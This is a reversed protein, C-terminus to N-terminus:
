SGLARVVIVGAEVMLGSAIGTAIQKWIAMWEAKKDESASEAARLAVWLRRVAEPLDFGVGVAEDDLASQMEHLLRHLYLRLHHDISEDNELLGRAQALVSRLTPIGSPEIELVKGDLFSAFAEIQDMDAETMVADSNIQASWGSARRGIVGYAWRPYQRRYVEVKLGEAAMLSLLDDIRALLRFAKLIERNGEATDANVVTLFQTGRGGAARERWDSYLAHLERAPNSM